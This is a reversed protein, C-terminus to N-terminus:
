SSDGGTDEPSTALEFRHRVNRLDPLVGVLRTREERDEAQELYSGVLRVADDFAAITAHRRERLTM